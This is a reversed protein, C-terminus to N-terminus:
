DFGFAVVEAGDDRGVFDYVGCIGWGEAEGRRLLEDLYVAQHARHFGGVSMHVIASTLARRDYGPVPVGPPVRKLNAERLPISESM